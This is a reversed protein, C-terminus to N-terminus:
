SPWGRVQRLHPEAPWSAFSHWTSRQKLHWSSPCTAPRHVSSSHHLTHPFNPWAKRAHGIDKVFLTRWDLSQTCPLPTTVSTMTPPFASALSAVDFSPVDVASAGSLSVALSVGPLSSEKDPSSLSAPPTDGLMNSSPSPSMSVECRDHASLSGSACSNVDCSGTCSSSEVNVSTRRPIFLGDDGVRLLDRDRGRELTRTASSLGHYEQGTSLHAAMNLRCRSASAWTFSRWGVCVTPLHVQGSFNQWVEHLLGCSHSFWRTDRCGSKTPWCSVSNKSLDKRSLSYHKLKHNIESAYNNSPHPSIYSHLMKALYEQMQHQVVPFSALSWQNWYKASSSFVAIITQWPEPPCRIRLQWGILKFNEYKM